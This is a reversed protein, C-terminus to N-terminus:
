LPFVGINGHLVAEEGGRHGSWAKKQTGASGPLPTFASRGRRVTGTPRNECHGTSARPTGHPLPDTLCQQPVSVRMSSPLFLSTPIGDPQRRRAVHAKEAAQGRQRRSIPSLTVNMLVHTCAMKPVRHVTERHYAGGTCLRPKQTPKINKM